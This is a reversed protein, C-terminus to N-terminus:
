AAGTWGGKATPFEIDDDLATAGLENRLASENM